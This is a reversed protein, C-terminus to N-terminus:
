YKMLRQQDKMEQIQNKQRLRLNRMNRQFQHTEELREARPIPNGHMSRKWIKQEMKLQKREIAHQREIQKLSSVAGNAACPAASSVFCAMFVALFRVTVKRM